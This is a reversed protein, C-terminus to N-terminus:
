SATEMLDLLDHKANMFHRLHVAAAAEPDHSEFAAILDHHETCIAAIRNNGFGYRMRLARLLTNTRNLAFLAEENDAVHNHINHFVQNAQLLKPNEPEKALHDYEGQAEKLKIVNERDIIM